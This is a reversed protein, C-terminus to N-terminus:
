HSISSRFYLIFISICFSVLLLIYISYENKRTKLGNHQIVSEIDTHRYISQSPGVHVLKKNHCLKSVYWDVHMDMPLASDLLIQASYPSVIYAVTGWSLRPEIVHTYGPIKIIEGDTDSDVTYQIRFVDYYNVEDLAKDLIEKAGDISVFDDEFIALNEGRSICEKWASLHSLYCGVSGKGSLAEHVYRGNKIEFYARPTTLSQINDDELAHGNIGDIFSVDRFGLQEIERISRQARDPSSRDLTICVASINHAM